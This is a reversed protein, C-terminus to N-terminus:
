PIRVMMPTIQRIGGFGIMRPPTQIEIGPADELLAKLSEEMELRALMEGICRHPGHGFVLHLRPHDTRRMLFEDPRSYMEPDRMASMTSLQLLVGAPVTTGGIRIPELTFRPVNSVSPDFRMSESIAGPVLSPDAQLAAWDDPRQRLLAVANAFAARTTDSGGLVFALVQNVLCSFEMGRTQQWDTVLRSLLDDTPAALRATMQEEVYAFAERAAIEVRDHKEVPYVPGIAGAMEYIRSAFYSADAVPFGIIAAIMEAPVRAAMREVFDFSEGRPLDAVIKRAVARIRNKSPLIAQHSFARAFPGRKTRHDKGNAFLLIDNLFRAMAGDPVNHHAVYDRGEIQVTRDDKLLPVVDAARLVYYSQLNIRIVPHDRRLEAFRAHPDELLWDPDILPAEVTIPTTKNM